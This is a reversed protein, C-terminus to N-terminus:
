KGAPKVIAPLRDYVDVMQRTRHGSATQKDGETDTVGKAKLDHLSFRQTLGATLARKIMRDWATQVTTELMRGGTKGPILHNKESRILAVKRPLALAADVAARLRPTWETITDRSGKRRRVMLGEQLIDARTLDLVESTRMRCLYALEMIIPLYAYERAAFGLVFQYAGDNVYITKPTEKALELGKCPNEKALDRNLAWEWCSSLFKVNRNAQTPADKARRDHYRQMTGRTIRNIEISGFVDGNALKTQGIREAYGRYDKQTRPALRLFNASDLYQAMLWALTRQPQEAKGMDEYAKWLESLPADTRCLVTEKGLKGGESKRYVYRGKAAYVNPPLRNDQPNKRKRGM